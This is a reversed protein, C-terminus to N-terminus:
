PEHINYTAPLITKASQYLVSKRNMTSRHCNTEPTPPAPPMPTTPKDTKM